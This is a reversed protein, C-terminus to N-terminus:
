LQGTYSISPPFHLSLIRMYVCTFRAPTAPSNEMSSISEMLQVAEYLHEKEGLSVMMYGNKLPIQLPSYGQTAVFDALQQANRLDKFSGIIVHYGKVQEVAQLEQQAQRISDEVFAARELEQLRQLEQQEKEMLEQKMQAIDESTPLGLGGRVMDCGQLLMVAALLVFIYVTRNM